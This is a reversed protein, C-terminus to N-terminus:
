NYLPKNIDISNRIEAGLYKLFRNRDEDDLFIGAKNDGRATLYYLAGPYELRLTRAM